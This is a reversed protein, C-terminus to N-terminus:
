YPDYSPGLLQRVEKSCGLEESVVVTAYAGTAHKRYSFLHDHGEAAYYCVRGGVM